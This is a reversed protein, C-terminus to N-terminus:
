PGVEFDVFVKLQNDEIAPNNTVPPNPAPVVTINPLSLFSFDFFFTHVLPFTLKETLVLQINDRLYCDLAAKMGPPAIEPTDVADISVNLTPAGFLQRIGVHGIVFADLCFCEPRGSPVFPPVKPAAALGDGVVQNPPWPQVKTLEDWGCVLGACVQATMAFHQPALPPNMEAPLTIVDGPYFDVEAKTLQACYNLAVPPADVGFLPLPAETTFLPNGYLTVDPTAAVQVCALQPDQAIAATAYNFLSPRQRMVHRAVLNIGAENVAAYLDCNSTYPMLGGFGAHPINSRLLLM